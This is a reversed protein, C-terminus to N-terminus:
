ATGASPRPLCSYGVVLILDGRGHPQAPAQRERDLEGRAPQRLVVRGPEGVQDLFQRMEREGRRAWARGARLQHRREVQGVARQLGVVLPEEPLQPHARTGMDAQLRRGRQPAAGEGFCFLAEGGQEIVVQQGPGWGALETKM